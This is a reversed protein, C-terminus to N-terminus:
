EDDEGLDDPGSHGEQDPVQPLEEVKVEIIAPEKPKRSGKGKTTKEKREEIQKQEVQAMRDHLEKEMEEKVKHAVKATDIVTNNFIPLVPIQFLSQQGGRKDGRAYAFAEANLDKLRELLDAAYPYSTSTLFINGTAIAVVRHDELILTGQIHIRPKDNDEGLDYTVSKVRVRQVISLHDTAHPGEMLVSQPEKSYVGFLGLIRAMHLRLSELVREMDEHVPSDMVHDASSTSLIEDFDEGKVTSTTFIGLGVKPFTIKSIKNEFHM